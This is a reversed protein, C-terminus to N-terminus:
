GQSLGLKFALGDGSKFKWGGFYPEVEDAKFEFGHEATARQAEKEAEKETGEFIYPEGIGFGTREILWYQKAM